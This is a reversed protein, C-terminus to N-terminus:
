KSELLNMILEVAKASTQEPSGSADVIRIREPCQDALDLYAARVRCHFDFAEDDIRTMEIEETRAPTRSILRERATEPEIDFILTLDPVLNGTAFRNLEHVLNLDLGRGYGQFVVSSDTYRDSIVLHGAELAPNIFESVHQARDAMMLLLEAQATLQTNAKSLLISRIREGLSTGGPERTLVADIGCSKLARGLMELQTSKGSGDVGELTIFRGRVTILRILSGIKM